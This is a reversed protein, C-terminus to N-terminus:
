LAGEIRRCLTKMIELRAFNKDNAAVLEASALEAQADLLAERLRPAEAEYTVKDVSHGLEASEFM